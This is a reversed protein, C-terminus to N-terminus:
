ASVRGPAVGATKTQIGGTRRTLCSVPKECRTCPHSDGVPSQQIQIHRPTAIAARWKTLTSAAPEFGTRPAKPNLISSGNRFDAIGIRFHHHLGVPLPMRRLFPINHTRIGGDGSKSFPPTPIQHLLAPARSPRMLRTAPNLEWAQLENPLSGSVTRRPASSVRMAKLGIPTRIGERGSCDPGPPSVSIM